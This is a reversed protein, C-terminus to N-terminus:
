GLPSLFRALAAPSEKILLDLLKEERPLRLHVATIYGMEFAAMIRKTEEDPLYGSAVQRGRNPHDFNPCIVGIPIYGEAIRGKLITVDKESPKWDLGEDIVQHLDTKDTWTVMQNGTPTLLLLRAANGAYWRVYHLDILMQEPTKTKTEDNM